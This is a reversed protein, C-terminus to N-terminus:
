LPLRCQTNGQVASAVMQVWRETVGLELAIKRQSHGIELRKVIAQKQPEPHKGNPVTITQGGFEACLVVMGHMGVIRALDHTASAAKPIYLEVGGRVVCLTKAMDKGLIGTLEPLSVWM